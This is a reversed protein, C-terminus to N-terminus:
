LHGNVILSNSHIQYTFYTILNRVILILIPTMMRVSLEYSLHTSQLSSQYHNWGARGHLTCVLSRVKFCASSDAASPCRERLNLSTVNILLRAYRRPDAAFTYRCHVDGDGEFVLRNQPGGFTGSEAHWSPFTEDCRTAAVPMGWWAERFFDFSARYFLSSAEFSGACLRCSSHHYFPLM